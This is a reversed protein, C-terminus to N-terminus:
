KTGFVSNQMERFKGVKSSFLIVQLGLSWDLAMHGWAPCVCPHPHLVPMFAVWQILLSVPPAPLAWFFLCGMPLTCRGRGWPTAASPLSCGPLAPWTPRPLPRSEWSPPCCPCLRACEPQRQVVVTHTHALGPTLAERTSWHNPSWRGTHPTHTRDRTPSSLDWMGPPWFIYFLLLITVLEM